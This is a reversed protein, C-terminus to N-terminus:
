SAATSSEDVIYYVGLYTDQWLRYGLLTDLSSRMVAGARQRMTPKEGVDDDRMYLVYAHMCSYPMCSVSVLEFM